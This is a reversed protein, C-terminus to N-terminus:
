VISEQSGRSHVSLGRSYMGDYTETRLCFTADEQYRAKREGYRNVQM